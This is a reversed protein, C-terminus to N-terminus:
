DKIIIIEYKNKLQTIFVDTDKSFELIASYKNISKKILEVNGIFSILFNEIFKNCFTKFNENNKMSVTYIKQYGM